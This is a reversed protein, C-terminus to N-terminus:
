GDLVDKKLLEQGMIETYHLNLIKLEIVVDELTCKIASLQDRQNSNQLPATTGTAGPLVNVSAIGGAHLARMWLANGDTLAYDFINNDDSRFGKTSDADPAALAEVYVLTANGSNSVRGTQTTALLSLEVWSDKPIDVHVTIAM